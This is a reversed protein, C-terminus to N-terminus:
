VYNKGRGKNFKIVKEALIDLRRTFNIGLPTISLAQLFHGIITGIITLSYKNLNLMGVVVVILWLHIWILSLKKQENKKIQTLPKNLAEAPAWKVATILSFAFTLVMLIFLINPSLSVNTFIFEVLKGMGLFLAISLVFCKGYTDSHYGGSFLRYSGVTLFVVTVHPVINLLYAIVFLTFIKLAEGIIVEFGFRLIDRKEPCYQLQGGLHEALKYSLETINM